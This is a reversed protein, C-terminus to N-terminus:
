ELRKKKMNPKMPIHYCIYELYSTLENELTMIDNEIIATTCINQILELAVSMKVM